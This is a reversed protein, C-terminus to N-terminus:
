GQLYGGVETFCEVSPLDSCKTVMKHPVNRRKWERHAGENSEFIYIEKSQLGTDDLFRKLLALKVRAVDSSKYPTDNFYAGDPKLSSRMSIGELTAEKYKAGRSTFIYVQSDVNSLWEIIWSNYEESDRIWDKNMRRRNTEDWNSILTANLSLLIAKYM